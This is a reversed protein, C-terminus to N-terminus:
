QMSMGLYESKGHWHTDQGVTLPFEEEPWSGQIYHMCGAGVGGVRMVVQRKEGRGVQGTGWKNGCEVCSGQKCGQRLDKELM